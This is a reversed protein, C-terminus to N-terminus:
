AFQLRVCTGRNEAGDSITLAAGHLRAVDAVIALGLGSGTGRSNTGRVFRRSVRDREEAPIGTGTDAVEVFVAEGRRGCRVTISGGSPTYTIANDVLNSLAEGLLWAVGEVPASELEAGLDVGAAFGRTVFDTVCSEAISALDVPRFESFTSAAHESRALALLQQTTHTLRKTASLTLALRDRMTQRPEEAMLLELQAQVGALPTRLQHAASELFQQQSRNALAITAFLRNLEDVVTRVEVPVSSSPIPELDRPSRAAVQKRLEKLPQLALGVAIWVLALILGLELLDAGLMTVLLSDRVNHRKNLTEGVTITVDGVSTATRYTVLRVRQGRFTVDHFAPNRVLAIPVPLDRDGALFEGQPGTVRFYITDSSDTRLVAIAEDPLMVSVHHAADTRVHGSIALAADALAKDYADRVPKIGSIYDSAAGGLLVLITPVVLLALLRRQISPAREQIAEPAPTM